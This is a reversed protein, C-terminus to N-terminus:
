ARSVMVIKEKGKERKKRKKGEKAWINNLGSGTWGPPKKYRL